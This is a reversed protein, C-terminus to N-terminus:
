ALCVARTQAAETQLQHFTRCAQDNQEHLDVDWLWSMRVEFVRRFAETVGQVNADTFAYIQGAERSSDVVKQSRQRRALDYAALAHEIDEPQEVQAFLTSLVLADEIAQGAGAGQYPTTCHAADGLIAARGQHYFPAHPHEFFGWCTPHDLLQQVISATLFPMNPIM